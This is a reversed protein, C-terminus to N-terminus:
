HLPHFNLSKTIDDNAHGAPASSLLFMQQEKVSRLQFSYIKLIAFTCQLFWLLQYSHSIIVVGVCHWNLFIIQKSYLKLLYTNKNTNGQIGSMGEIIFINLKLWITVPCETMQCKVLICMQYINQVLHKHSRRLECASARVGLTITNPPIAKLLYNPTSSTM